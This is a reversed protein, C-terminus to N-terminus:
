IQIPTALLVAPHLLKRMPLTMSAVQSRRFSLKILIQKIQPTIFIIAVSLIFVAVAPGVFQIRYMHYSGSFRIDINTM